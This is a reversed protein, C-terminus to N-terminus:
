QGYRLELLEVTILVRILGLVLVSWQDIVLLDM